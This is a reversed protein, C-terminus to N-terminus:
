LPAPNKGDINKDNLISKVAAEESSFLNTPFKPKTKKLIFFLRGLIMQTIGHTVISMSLQNQYAEKEFIEIRMAEKTVTGYLGPIVLIHYPARGNDTLRMFADHIELQDKKNVIYHNQNFRMEIIGDKRIGIVVLSTEASNLYNPPKVYNSEKEMMRNM